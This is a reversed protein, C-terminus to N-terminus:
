AVGLVCYRADHQCPFLDAITILVLSQWLLLLRCLVSTHESEELLHRRQRLTVEITPSAM